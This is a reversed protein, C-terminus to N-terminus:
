EEIEKAKTKKKAQKQLFSCRGESVLGELLTKIREKWSSEPDGTVEAKNKALQSLSLSAAGMVDDATFGGVTTLKEIAASLCGEAVKVGTSRERLTYNPITGGARVFETNNSKVQEAWNELAQALAHAVCRDDPSVLADPAFSSPLPLGIGTAVARVAPVLAPCTAARACMRCLDCPTPPLFPDDIRAYLSEIDKRVIGLLAQADHTGIIPEHLRPAVVHTTVTKLQEKMWDITALIRGESDMLNVPQLPNTMEVLAAGYTKVQFDHDAEVRTFKYDVVHAIPLQRHLLIVDGYGFTLDRLELRAEQIRLWNGGESAELSGVYDVATTVARSQEEDLGDLCRKECAEHLMTGESDSGDETEKRRYRLCLTLSDLRSPSFRAHIKAM